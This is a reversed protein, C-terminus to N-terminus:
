IRATRDLQTLMSIGSGQLTLMIADSKAAPAHEMQHPGTSIRAVQLCGVTASEVTGHASVDKNIRIRPRGAPGVRQSRPSVSHTQSAAAPAPLCALPQRRM